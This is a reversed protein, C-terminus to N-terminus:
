FNPDRSNLTQQRTARQQKMENAAKFLQATVYFLLLTVVVNGTDTTTCMRIQVFSLKNFRFRSKSFKHLATEAALVVKKPEM